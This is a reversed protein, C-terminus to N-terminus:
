EAHPVGKPNVDWCETPRGKGPSPSPASARVWGADELLSVAARVQEPTSLGAWGKLYCTRTTFPSPLDGSQIHRALERASRTEPSVVCSYVRRAHAELYECLAASQKAHNLSISIEGRLGLGGGLCDSLEFLAAVSPMLSRYKALHAVLAPHLGSNGRVKRELEILWDFFLEQADSAFRLRVPSDASLKALTSFVLEAIETAKANPLRDVLHWDKPTDPWVLIQFRQFLGDDGVGGDTSESLYHRLRAPQINGFFSVCVAPVYISGRGVRDISFGSDGNWAQLFFAREGERGLKDLQSLWGTLEDRVVFVGEPNHSLIEHLKEFTADSLMLRRQTPEIPRAEPPKISEASKAESNNPTTKRSKISRKYEDDWVEWSLKSKRQEFGYENLAAQYEANWREEIRTLPRTVSQLIPSKMFGPQAIMGGWLNPIVLWSTDAVKPQVVARRNVCGALSCIVVAAAFDPPAQMRDSVDYVLPRFSAPLLELDFAPVPPLEDGLPAPDPWQSSEATFTKKTAEFPLASDLISFMAEDGFAALFDDPGNVNEAPPIEACLVIAGREALERALAARARQVDPNTEANSDFALVASRGQWTILGLDPSPGTEPETSGDPLNRKGCKRRWGWCGGIAIPLMPRGARDALSRLALASKEAEVIAAPVGSDRLFDGAHPPFFLHRCGAESLYKGGNPLPCDLRVRAGVREGSTPQFYPFLIGSLDCGRHGNASLMERCELDTVSRVGARELTEPAIRLRTFHDAHEPRLMRVLAAIERTDAVALNGQLFRIASSLNNL